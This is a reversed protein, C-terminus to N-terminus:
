YGQGISVTLFYVNEVGSDRLKRAAEDITNGTTYIDDILVVSRVGQLPKRVSFANYLNKKRTSHDLKKQPNTYRTRLLIDNRVPIHLRDGLEKALIGAQNYGRKRKRKKHLPIPIICEPNWTRILAEMQSYMEDAYYKAFTRQNHYKFRYISHSVPAKHLWLARGMQFYHKASGCDYCYEQEQRRLPKGCKMCKPQEIRLRQIKIKCAPCIGDRYVRGCFPCVEPWLLKIIM